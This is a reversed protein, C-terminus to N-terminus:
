KTSLFLEFREYESHESRSRAFGARELVAQSRYNEKKTQAFLGQFGANAALTCMAIVANTMIGRHRRSTWYGIEAKPEKSKIDCAAAVNKEGDLVAFVFHSGSSWGGESWQLWQRAQEEKYPRGELPGRFLWDYVDPENCIAAIRALNSSDCSVECARVLEYARGSVHNMVPIRLPHPFRM